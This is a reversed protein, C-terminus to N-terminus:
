RGRKSPPPATIPATHGGVAPYALGGIHVPPGAKAFQRGPAKVLSPGTRGRPAVEAPVEALMHGKGGKGFVASRQRDHKSADVSSKRPAVM